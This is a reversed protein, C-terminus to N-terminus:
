QEEESELEDQDKRARPEEERISGPPAVQEEAPEELMTEQVQKRNNKPAM